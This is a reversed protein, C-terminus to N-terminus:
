LCLVRRLAFVYTSNQNTKKAKIQYKKKKKKTTNTIFYKFINLFIHLTYLHCVSLSLYLSLPLSISNYINIYSTFCKVDHEPSFFEHGGPCIHIFHLTHSLSPYISLAHLWVPTIIQHITLVCPM